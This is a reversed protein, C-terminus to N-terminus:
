RSPDKWYTSIAASRTQDARRVRGRGGRGMRRPPRGCAPGSAPAPRLRPALVLTVALSAVALLAMARAPSLLEALVGALLAALGQCALLGASQLGLAQGALETPTLELLREQLLLSASFGVSSLLVAAVAVATPLGEGFGFVLYPVALLLRLPATLRARARPSLFRGATVDGVLMGVGAVAFLLGAHRADHAVFLSECGVILGNPVWLALYVARRPAASWLRANVRRTAAISPRGLARPPRDGLGCRLVLAALAYLGAGVLLTGRPSLFPVLVGGVAYGCIQVTGTAVTLASRGLLFGDAPLIERLLGPRAGSGVAGALGQVALIGFGAAVPLGPLAQLLAGLAGFLALGTLVARPRLRDAASLLTTAGVVQALSPGFLALASLLASGTAAHVATALALSAVTGAAVSLASGAFFAPFEPTRLLERYSRM